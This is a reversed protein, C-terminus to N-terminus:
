KEYYAIAVAGDGAHTGVVSGIMYKEGDLGLFETLRNAREIDNAHAFCYDKSFDAPLENTIIEKLKKMADNEGRSKALTDIRGNRVVIIPKINLLTGVYGSVASVRGGKILYKLTDVIALVRTRGALSNLEDAIKAAPVGENNLKVAHKVLLGLGATVNQSDVVYINDRGTMQAAIVASQHTGSLGAAITIVVIDEDPHRNFVEEYDAPNILSTTPLTDSNRLKEFFEESTLDIKDRYHVDGFNVKLSMMEVGMQNIEGSTLDCTSDTIILAM